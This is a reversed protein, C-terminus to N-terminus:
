RPHRAHARNTCRSSIMPPSTMSSTTVTTFRQRARTSRPLVGQRATRAPAIHARAAGASLM